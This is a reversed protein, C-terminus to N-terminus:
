KTTKLAGDNAGGFYYKKGNITQWGTKMAGDNAGGLYYWKGYIKQWYTKKVGDNARGFWFYNGDIKKWYTAMEGTQDFYYMSVGDEMDTKWVSRVPYGNENLWFNHIIGDIDLQVIQNAMVETSAELGEIPFEDTDEVDDETLFYHYSSLGGNEREQWWGGYPIGTTEDHPDPMLSYRLTIIEDGDNKVGILYM